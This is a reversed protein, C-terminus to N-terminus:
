LPLSGTGPQAAQDGRQTHGGDSSRVTPVVGLHAHLRRASRFSRIDGVESLFALALLRTVARISILLKLEAELPRGAQYIEDKLAQKQEQLGALVALSTRICLRSVSSLEVTKLREEGKAPHDALRTGLIRGRIGNDLLVGHIENKLQRIQKNLLEYLGFLRRLERVVPGSQWVEPLKM